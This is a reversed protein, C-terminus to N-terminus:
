HVLRRVFFLIHTTFMYIRTKAVRLKRLPFRFLRVVVLWSVMM